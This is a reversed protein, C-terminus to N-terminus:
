DPMDRPLLPREPLIVQITNLEGARYYEVAVTDGVKLSNAIRMLVDLGTLSEGNVKTIVDGGLLFEQQGIKLPLSGSVLGAKDAASGPEITEILFGPVLPFNVLMILTFDLMRGNIGHWPRIVRGHEVLDPIINKVINVPVAFGINEGSELVTSNIGIVEGCRNVLPGGSNGTSLAADTQIYPVQWNMPRIPLTRNLGSIIGRSVTKELGMSNGIAIVDEGVQLADSDGLKAVSLDGHLGPIRLVALDLIPDVGLVEAAIVMGGSLTIYVEDLDLVIHANTLVLGEGDVVVGSGIVWKVREQQDFPDVSMGSVSVVSPLVDRILDVTARDCSVTSVERAHVIVPLSLVISIVLCCAPIKMDNFPM